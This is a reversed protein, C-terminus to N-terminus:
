SKPPFPEFTMGRPLELLSDPFAAPVEASRGEYTVITGDPYTIRSRIPFGGLDSALYVVRKTGGTEDPCEYGVFPHGDFTGSTLKKGHDRCPAARFVYDVSPVILEREDATSALEWKLGKEYSERWSYTQPGLRLVRVRDGAVDAGILARDKRLWVEFHAPLRRGSRGGEVRRTCTWHASEFTVAPGPHSGVGCSLALVAGCAAYLGGAAGRM